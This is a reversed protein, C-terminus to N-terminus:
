MGREKCIEDYAKNIEAMKEHAIKLFDEPVGKAQMKDPHFERVLKRYAKKVEDNSAERTVGLVQYAQGTQKKFLAEIQQSSLLPYISLM